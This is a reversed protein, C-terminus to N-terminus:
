EAVLYREIIKRDAADPAARLYRSLLDQARETEGKERLLLGLARLADADDPTLVVAREYSRLTTRSMRGTRHTRRAVEGKLYYARGSDPYLSLYRDIAAKARHFQSAELEIEAALLLIQSLAQEYPEVGIM